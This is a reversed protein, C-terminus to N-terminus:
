RADMEIGNAKFFDTFNVSAYIQYTNNKVEADFYFQFQYDSHTECVMDREVNLRPNTVTFDYGLDNFAAVCAALLM